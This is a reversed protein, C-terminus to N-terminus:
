FLMCPINTEKRSSVLGQNPGRKYFQPCQQVENHRTQEIGMVLEILPERLVNLISSLILAVFEVFVLKTSQVHDKLREHQATDLFVHLVFQALLHDCEM